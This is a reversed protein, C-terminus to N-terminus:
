AARAKAVNRAIFALVLMALSAAWYPGQTGLQVFLVGTVLTGVGRGLTGASSYVGLLLGREQPGALRSVLSQMSTLVLASAISQLVIAGMAGYYSSHSGAVVTALMALSFLVAGWQFLRQEGFRLTLPGILGGQILSLVLGGVLLLPTLDRPGAAIGTDRVWLPYIAEAMGAGLNYVLVGVLFQPVLARSWLLRAARLRGVRPAARAAARHEPDLSEPLLFLVALMAATALVASLLAPTLLNATAFDDGALWSGLAPGLIFGIGFGAGILGMGRARDAETTIDTIYAQAAAINGAMLGALLRSLAVVWISEAFGLMLYGAIAGLMSLVLVPKRGHLDSLRGLIPTALLMGLAYLAMCLTALEPGGGLQVVYYALIPVMIGFGVLDLVIVLFIILM